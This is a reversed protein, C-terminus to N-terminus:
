PNKVNCSLFRHRYLVPVAMKKDNNGSWHLFVVASYSSDGVSVNSPYPLLHFSCAFVICAYISTLMQLTCQGCRDLLWDGHICLSQLQEAVMRVLGSGDWFQLYQHCMGFETHVCSVGAAYSEESVWSSLCFWLELIAFTNKTPISNQRKYIWWRLM